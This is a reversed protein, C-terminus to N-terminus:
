ATPYIYILNALGKQYFIALTVLVKQRELDEEYHQELELISEAPAIIEASQPTDETEALAELKTELEAAALDVEAALGNVASNAVKAEVAAVPVTEPMVEAAPATESVTEAELVTEHMAESVPTSEPMIEPLPEPVLTEHVAEVAVPEMEAVPVAVVTPEAEPTAEAVPVAELENVAAPISEAAPAVPLAGM